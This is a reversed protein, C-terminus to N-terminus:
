YANLIYLCRTVQQNFYFFAINMHKAAINEKIFIIKQQSDKSYKSNPFRNIILEFNNLAKINYSGDLKSNKIQEYYCLARMYYVYEIDKYSPYTNIIKNFKLIADFYNLKSYEIFAIMIESQIGENSLPYSDTIKKFEIKASDLNKNNALEMGKKYMEEPSSTKTENIYDNKSSCSLILIM